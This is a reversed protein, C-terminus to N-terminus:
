GRDHHDAAGAIRYREVLPRLGYGSLKLVPHQEGPHPRPVGAVVGTGADPGMDVGVQDGAGRRRGPGLAAAVSGGARSTSRDAPPVSEVQAAKPRDTADSDLSLITIFYM